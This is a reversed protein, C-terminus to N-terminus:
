KEYLDVRERITSDVKELTNISIELSKEYNGRKFNQEAERLGNNVNINDRFRNGYVVLNEAKKANKVIKNTTNYLKM